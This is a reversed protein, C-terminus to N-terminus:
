ASKNRKWQNRNGLIKNTQRRTGKTHNQYIEFFQTETQHGTIAMISKTPVKGYLNSAFSRRCTHSSILQYKPFINNEKRATDKNMKSGEVMETIGVLQCVEKIYLNFKQDSITRPLSGNRKELISKIQPHM